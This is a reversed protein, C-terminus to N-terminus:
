VNNAHHRRAPAQLRDLCKYCRYKYGHVETPRLCRTLRCLAVVIQIAILSVIGGRSEVGKLTWESQRHEYGQLAKRYAMGIAFYGDPISLDVSDLAPIVGAPQATAVGDPVYLEAEAIPGLLEVM